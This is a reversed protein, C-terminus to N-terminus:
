GPYASLGDIFCRGAKDHAFDSCGLQATGFDQDEVDSDRSEVDLLGDGPTASHRQCDHHHHACVPRAHGGAAAHCATLASAVVRLRRLRMLGLSWLAWPSQGGPRCTSLAYQSLCMGLGTQGTGERCSSHPRFIESVSFFFWLSSLLGILGWLGLMWLVVWVGSELGAVVASSRAEFARFISQMLKEETSM